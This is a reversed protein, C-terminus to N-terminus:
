LMGDSFEDDHFRQNADIICHGDNRRYIRIDTFIGEWTAEVPMDAKFNKLIDILDQVTKIEIAM